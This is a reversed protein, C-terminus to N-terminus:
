LNKIFKASRSQSKAPDAALYGEAFSVKLNQKSEATSEESLLGKLKSNNEMESAVSRSSDKGGKLSIRELIRNIGSEGKKFFERDRSQQSKFGRQIEHSASLLQPNNM